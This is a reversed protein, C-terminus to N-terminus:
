EKLKVVTERRVTRVSVFESNIPEMGTSQNSIIPYNFRYLFTNECTYLTPFPDHKCTSIYYTNALCAPQGELFETCVEPLYTFLVSSPICNISHTRKRTMCRPQLFKMILRLEQVCPVSWGIKCEVSVVKSVRNVSFQSDSLAVYVATVANHTQTFGAFVGDTHIGIRTPIM